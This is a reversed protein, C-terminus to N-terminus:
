RTAHSPSKPQKAASLMELQEVFRKDHKPFSKNNHVLRDLESKWESPEALAALLMLRAKEVHVDHDSQRLYIEYVELGSALDNCQRSAHILTSAVSPDVKVRHANESATTSMQLSSTPPSQEHLLGAARFTQQSAHKFLEVAQHVQAQRANPSLATLCAYSRSALRLTWSDHDPEIGLDDLEKFLAEVRACTPEVDKWDARSGVRDIRSEGQMSDMMGAIEARMAANYAMRVHQLTVTSPLQPADDHDRRIAVSFLHHTLGLRFEDFLRLVKSYMDPDQPASARSSRDLALSMLSLTSGLLWSDREYSGGDPHTDVVRFSTRTARATMHSVNSAMEMALDPYGADAFSAVLSRALRAPLMVRGDQLEQFVRKVVSTLGARLLMQIFVGTMRASLTNGSGLWDLYLRVAFHPESTSRLSQNFLWMFSDQDPAALPHFASFRLLGVQPDKSWLERTPHRLRILEYLRQSYLYDRTRLHLGLLAVQASLSLSDNSLLRDKAIVMDTFRRIYDQLVERSGKEQNRQAIHAGVKTWRSRSPGLDVVATPLCAALAKIVADNIRPDLDVGVTHAINYVTMALHLDLSLGRHTDYSKRANAQNDLTMRSALNELVVTFLDHDPVKNSTQQEKEPTHAQKPSSQSPNVDLGQLIHLAPQLVGRQALVLAVREGFLDISDQPMEFGDSSTQWPHWRTKIAFRDDPLEKDRTEDLSKGDLEFPLLWWLTASDLSQLCKHVSSKSVQVESLSILRLTKLIPDSQDIASTNLDIPSPLYEPRPSTEQRQRAFRLLLQDFPRPDIFPDDQSRLAQEVQVQLHHVAADTSGLRTLTAALRGRLKLDIQHEPKTRSSDLNAALTQLISSLKPRRREPRPSKSAAIQEEEVILLYLLRICVAGSLTSLGHEDKSSSAEVSTGVQCHLRDQCLRLIRDCVQRVAGRADASNHQSSRVPKRCQLTIVLDIVSQPLAHRAAGLKEYREWWEDPDLNQAAELLNRQAPDQAILEIDKLSPLYREDQSCGSASSSQSPIVPRASSFYSESHFASSFIQAASPVSASRSVSRRSRRSSGTTLQRYPRVSGIASVTHTVDSALSTSTAVGKTLRGVSWRLM